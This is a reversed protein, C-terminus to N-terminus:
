EREFRCYGENTPLQFQHYPICSSLFLLAQTNHPGTITCQRCVPEFCRECFYEFPVTHLTCSKLDSAKM